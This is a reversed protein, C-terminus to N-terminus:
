WRARRTTCSSRRPDSIPRAGHAVLGSVGCRDVASWDAGAAGARVLDALDAVADIQALAETLQLQLNRRQNVVEPAYRTEVLQRRARGAADVLSPYFVISPLALAVFFAALRAAQSAHELAARYRRLRWAAAIAVIM